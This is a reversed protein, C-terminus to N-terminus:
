LSQYVKVTNHVCNAVTFLKLRQRGQQKLQQQLPIDYIVKEVAKRISGTDEPDFYVAADGAIEPLSTVNSCAVPCNSAFAELLPLGFGEQSSPFVFLLAQQYLQKLQVDTADIHRCLANIGLQQLLANENETFPRGGACILTLEPDAILVPAIATVFATFNKYYMREGVFLMYNPPLPLDAAAQETMTNGLYVVETKNEADPFFRAIERKTHASIAIIKEAKEILIKKTAVVDKAYPFFDPLTEHIMDYVTLVFPRNYYELFAPDYYTPHFVDFKGAKVILRTYRSNWRYTRNRHGNFLLPGGWNKLPQPYDKLYENECYLLSITSSHDPLTNLGSNLGAFYRSIGGFRQNSFIQHDFLVKM